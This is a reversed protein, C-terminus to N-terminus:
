FQVFRGNQGVASSYKKDGSIIYNHICARKAAEKVALTSTDPRAIKINAGFDLRFM